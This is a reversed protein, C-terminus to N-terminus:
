SSRASNAALTSIARRSSTRDPSCANAESWANATRRTRCQASHTAFRPCGSTPRPGSIRVTTGSPNTSCYIGRSFGIPVGSLPDEGPNASHASNGFGFTIRRTARITPDGPNSNSIATLEPDCAPPEGLSRVCIAQLCPIEETRVYLQPGDAAQFIVRPTQQLDARDYCSSFKEVLWPRQTLRAPHLFRCSM